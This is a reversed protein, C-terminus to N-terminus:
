RSVDIRHLRGGMDPATASVRILCPPPDDTSGAFLRELDLAARLRTSWQRRSDETRDAVRPEGRVLDLHGLGAAGELDLPVGRSALFEAAKDRGNALCGNIIVPAVDFSAGRTILLEMLDHQMGALKPHIPSAIAYRWRSM